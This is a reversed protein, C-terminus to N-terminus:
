LFLYDELFCLLFKFVLILDNILFWEGSMLLFYYLLDIFKNLDIKVSLVNMEDLMFYNLLVVGGINLVGGVFWYDCICYFYFGILFDDICKILFMKIVFMLGFLMVVVGEEFLVGVFFVVISDMIGVCVVM